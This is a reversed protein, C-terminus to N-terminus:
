PTASIFPSLIMTCHKMKVSACMEIVSLVASMSYQFHHQIYKLREQLFYVGHEIWLRLLIPSPFFMRIIRFYTALLTYKYFYKFKGLLYLFTLNDSNVMTDGPFELNGKNCRLM